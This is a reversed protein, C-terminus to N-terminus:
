HKSGDIENKLPMAVREAIIEAYEEIKKGLKESVAKEIALRLEWKFIQQRVIKIFEAKTENKIIEELKGDTVLEDLAARIGNEVAEELNKNNTRYEALIRQANIGLEIRVTALNDM